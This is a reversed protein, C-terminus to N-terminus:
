EEIVFDAVRELFSLVSGEARVLEIRYEDDAGGYIEPDKAHKKLVREYARRTEAIDKFPESEGDVMRLVMSRENEKSVNFVIWFEPDDTLADVKGKPEWTFFQEGALKTLWGKYLVVGDSYFNDASVEENTALKEYGDYTSLDYKDLDVLSGEEIGIGTILWTRKDYPEFIYFGPNSVSDEDLIAWIGNMDPDIRSREPDGIPVPMCALLGAFIPIILLMLAVGSLTRSRSTM